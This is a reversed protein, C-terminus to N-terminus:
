LIFNRIFSRVKVNSFGFIFANVLGQSYSFLIHLGQVLPQHESDNIQSFIYRYPNQKLYYNACGFFFQFFLFIPYFYFPKIFKSLKKNQTRRFYRNLNFYIKATYMLALFMPLYYLVAHLLVQEEPSAQSCVWCGRQNQIGYNSTFVPRNLELVHHRHVLSPRLQDRQIRKYKKRIRRRSKYCDYQSFLCAFGDLLLLEIRWLDPHLSAVSVAPRRKTNESHFLYM